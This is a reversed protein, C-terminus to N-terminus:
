IQVALSCGLSARSRVAGARGLLRGRRPADREAGFPDDADSVRIADMARCAASRAGSVRSNGRCIWRARVMGGMFAMVFPPVAFALLFLAVDDPLHRMGSEGRNVWLGRVASVFAWVLAGAVLPSLGVLTNGAWEFLGAPQPDRSLGIWHARLPLWEHAAQWFWLPASMAAAIAVAMWPGPRRLRGRWRRGLALLAALCVPQALNMPSALAGAGMAVGAFAWNRDWRGARHLARWVFWMALVWAAFGISAPVFLVGFANFVPTVNLLLVTWRAARDDYLSASLRYVFGSVVLALVPALWRVALASRGGALTGVKVVWPALPGFDFFAPAPREACLALHAEEPSLEHVAALCARLVTLVLLALFVPRPM